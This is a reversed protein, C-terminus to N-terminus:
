GFCQRLATLAKAPLASTAAPNTWVFSPLQSEIDKDNPDVIVTSLREFYKFFRAINRFGYRTLFVLDNAEVRRKVQKMEDAFIAANVEGSTGVVIVNPTNPTLQTLKGCVADIVRRTNEDSDGAVRVRTVEFNFTFSTTYTVAYDPGFPQGAPILNM